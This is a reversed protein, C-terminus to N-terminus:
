TVSGLPRAAPNSGFMATRGCLVGTGVAEENTRLSGGSIDLDPSGFDSLPDRLNQVTMHSPNPSTPNGKATEAREATFSKAESPVAHLALAEMPLSSSLTMRLIQTAATTAKAHTTMAAPARASVTYRVSPFLM